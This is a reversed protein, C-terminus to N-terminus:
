YFLLRGGNNLYDMLITQANQNIQDYIPVVSNVSSKNLNNILVASYGYPSPNTGNYDAMTNLLNITVSLGLNELTTKFTQYNDSSSNNINTDLILLSM